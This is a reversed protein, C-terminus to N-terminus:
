AELTQQAREIRAITVVTGIATADNAHSHLTTQLAAHLRTAASPYHTRVWAATDAKRLREAEAKGKPTGDHKREPLGLERRWSKPPLTVLELCLAAAIGTVIGYSGALMMSAKPRQPIGAPGECALAEAVRALPAVDRAIENVRDRLRDDPSTVFVGLDMVEIRGSATDLLAFGCASIGPDLGLIVM